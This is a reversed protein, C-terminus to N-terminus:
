NPLLEGNTIAIGWAEKVANAPDSQISTALIRINLQYGEPASVAVAKEILQATTQEPAVAKKHYWFGDTGKQWDTTNWDITYDVNEIPATALVKKDAAEFTVVVTARIFADVNGTNKICVNEKVGNEFTEEVECTVKAPVFENSVPDTTSMLYAFVGGAVCAIISIYFAAILLTKKNKQFFETNM